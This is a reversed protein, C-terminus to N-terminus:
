GRADSFYIESVFNEPFMSSHFKSSSPRGEGLKGKRGGFLSSEVLVTVLNQM